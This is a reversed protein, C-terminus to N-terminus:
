YVSYNRGYSDNSYSGSSNYGRGYPGRYPTQPRSILRKRLIEGTCRDVRLRFICGDARQANIKVVGRRRGQRPNHFDFWGRRRLQARIQFRPLCYGGRREYRGTDYYQISSKPLGSGYAGEDNPAPLDKLSPAYPTYPAIPSFEDLGGGVYATSGSDAYYGEGAFAAGSGGVSGAYSATLMGFGYIAATLLNYKM